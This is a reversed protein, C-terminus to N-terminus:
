CSRCDARARGPTFDALAIKPSGEPALAIEVARKLSLPLVGPTAPPDSQALFFIFSVLEVM